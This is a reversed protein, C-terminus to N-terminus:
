SGKDESADQLINKALLIPVNGSTLVERLVLLLANLFDDPSHKLLKAVLGLVDGSKQSKLRSIAHKLEAMTGPPETPM